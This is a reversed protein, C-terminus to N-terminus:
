MKEVTEIGLLYLGNHLVQATAATIALRFNAQDSRERSDSFVTSNGLISHKQYFLNFAQALQYLYTCLKNPALEGAAQAVIDSYLSILRAVSREEPNLVEHSVESSDGGLASGGDSTAAVAKRLVSRCRAYTYLLYPGSDGELSLSTDFDFVLDAPLAVRLFSYKIAAIAVKEAIKEQEEKSYKSGSKQLYDYVRKKVEEILWEGTLIDGTRSSMKGQPLRMMGHGIHRTKAAVEPIVRRMVAFLVKFYENIENGTVNLSLDPSFDQFKKWNLGLEKAEYTPLGLSNIFVRNHLGVKEGEFIIAGESITFVKDDLHEKVIKAGYEGMTSEPYYYDFKTGLRRFIVEFYDMSWTRGTEFLTKIEQYQKGSVKVYQRYNVQPQWNLTKQMYEQAALYVLYNIDKMEERAKDAKASKEEYITAGLAYAQGLWHVRIAKPARELDALIKCNTKKPDKLLERMGWISKAVHMGVDGFYDARKVECGVAEHLRALSEGVANSYLHGIHLEKFPNPDTYEVMVRKKTKGHVRFQSSHVIRDGEKQKLAENIHSILSAETLFFNLFGPGAVEVHDIAQLLDSLDSKDSIIHNSQHINQDQAKSKVKSKQSKVQEVVWLALDRPSKIDIGWDDIGPISNLQSFLRLALNSTYEGYTPNDAIVVEPKFDSIGLESIIGTLLKAIATKTTEVSFNLSEVSELHLSGEGPLHSSLKKDFPPQVVKKGTAFTFASALHIQSLQVVTCTARLFKRLLIKAESLAQSFTEEKVDPVRELVLVANVTTSEIKTRDAERWNWRRCIFGEIDKYIVEGKECVEQAKGGLCIGKESADAFTLSIDGAVKDLDEAGAPLHYKLSLYNYLNVLPNIDPLPKGTCARRLLSEVSSRYEHPNSGFKRYIERWGAIDPLVGFDAGRLLKQQRLEETRLHALIEEGKGRNNLGTIVIVGIEVGPFTEFIKPDISFKM